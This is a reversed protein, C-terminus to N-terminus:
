SFKKIKKFNKKSKKIFKISSIKIAEVLESKKINNDISLYKKNDDPFVSLAVKEGSLVTGLFNAGGSIGVGLGLSNFKKVMLIADDDKVSIVGDVMDKNYLKPIIDDSLGQIKHKGSSVGLSLLSSNKPEVAFVKKNKNKFRHALGMLTGSTGVGAVVCSFNLGIQNEIEKGLQNKHILMNNINEFQNPMYSNNKIAYKKASDFAENFDKTLHIEAGYFMLLKKREESMSSPMFIVVKYGLFSGLACLSIGMNGSTTEVISQGPKLEGMKIANKIINFAVRDKISGTLNYWEAKMYSVRSEGKFVYKIEIIPTNGISNKLFNLNKM